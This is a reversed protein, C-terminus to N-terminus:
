TRLFAGHCLDVFGGNSVMNVLRQTNNTLDNWPVEWQQHCCPFQARCQCGTVTYYHLWCFLSRSRDQNQSFQNRVQQWGTNQVDYVAYTFFSTLSQGGALTDSFDSEGTRSRNTLVDQFTGSVRQDWASYFQATLRRVDVEFVNHLVFIIVQALTHFTDSQREEVLTFYTGTRGTGQNLFADVFVNDRQDNLASALDDATVRQIGVSLNTSLSRFLLVLADHVVDGDTFGFTSFNQQTAADFSQFAVQGFTVVNLWSHHSAAVVHTDELFLDKARNDRYGGEFVFCFSQSNSVIGFETQAGTYPGAVHVTSVAHTAVDLGTTYPGVAVVHVRCVCRETTVLFGTDATFGM